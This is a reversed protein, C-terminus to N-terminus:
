LLVVTVVVIRYITSVCLVTCIMYLVCYVIDSGSAEHQPGCRTDNEEGGRIKGGEYEQMAATRDGAPM